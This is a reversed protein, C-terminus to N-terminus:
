WLNRTKQIEVHRLTSFSEHGKFNKGCHYMLVM